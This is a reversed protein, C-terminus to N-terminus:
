KGRGRERSVGGAGERDREQEAPVLPPTIRVGKAGVFDSIRRLSPRPPIRYLELTYQYLPFVAVLNESRYALPALKRWQAAHVKDRSTLIYDAHLKGVPDDDNALKQFVPASHLKTDVVFNPAWDGLIMASPKGDAQAIRTLERSIEQTRYGKTVFYYGIQSASSLVYLGVLAVRLSRARLRPALLWAGVGAVVGVFLGVGVAWGSRHLAFFIPQVVHFALLGVPVAVALPKRKLLPLRWLMVAAHGCLAPWFVLYYRTPAYKSVSIWLIGVMTWLYLVRLAEGRKRRSWLPAFLGALALLALAPDRTFLRQMLGNYYGIWGRRIMWLLQTLSKPRAQEMAYHRNMHVIADEHPRFWLVYYLLLAVVAGLAYVGLGRYRPFKEGMIPPRPTILAALVPLPAFLLFSSKWAVLSAALFGALLRGRVGGICWAWFAACAVCVAPSEMLALRNYFLYTPEFGLFLTATVAVRRGLTRRLGDYFFVLALLGFVVSLTRVPVLGVGFGRFIGQQLLDLIPSLNRNNFGDLEAQGFLVANRANHTYFGEDTWIGTGWCLDPAADADLFLVRPLVLALLVLLWVGARRM